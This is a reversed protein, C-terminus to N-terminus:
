KHRREDEIAQEYATHVGGEEPISDLIADFYVLELRRRRLSARTLVYISDQPLDHLFRPVLFERLKMGDYSLVSIACDLKDSRNTAEMMELFDQLEEETYISRAILPLTARQAEITAGFFQRALSRMVTM